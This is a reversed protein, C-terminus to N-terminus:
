LSPENTEVQEFFIENSEEEVKSNFPQQNWIVHFSNSIIQSSTSFIDLSYKIVELSEYNEEDTDYITQVPENSRQLFQDEEWLDALSPGALNDKTQPAEDSSLYFNPFDYIYTISGIM